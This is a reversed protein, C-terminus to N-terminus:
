LGVAACVADAQAADIAVDAQAADFVWAVPVALRGAAVNVAIHEDVDHIRGCYLVLDFPELAGVLAAVGAGPDPHAVADVDVAAAVAVAHPGTCLVRM